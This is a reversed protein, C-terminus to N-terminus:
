FWNKDGHHSLFQGSQELTLNDITELQMRVSDEVSIQGKLEPYVKHFIPMMAKVSMDAQEGTMKDANQQAGRGRKM